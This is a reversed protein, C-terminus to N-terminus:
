RMRQQRLAALAMDTVSPQDALGEEVPRRRVRGWLKSLATGVSLRGTLLRRVIDSGRVWATYVGGAARDSPMAQALWRMPWARWLGRRWAASQKLYRVAEARMGLGLARHGVALCYHRRLRLTEDDTCDPGAFLEDFFSLKNVEFRYAGAGTALHGQALPQNGAAREHKIALPAAIMSAQFERALRALFHYDAASRTHTAFVGIRDIAERTCVTVPLWNLYGWRMHPFLHGEYVM